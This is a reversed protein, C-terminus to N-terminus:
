EARMPDNMKMVAFFAGQPDALLAFRGPMVDMPPLMVTGGLETAKAVTADCDAVAFYTLWHPPVEDPVRGRMDLMGGVGAGDLHWETYVSGDGMHNKEATWGFVAGYFREATDPDRTNLENWSLSDPENVIGAGISEGAQWASFVAGSPDMAVLMRGATMVDMPPALITGGADTIAKATADVDAVTVYTNWMPPGADPQNPGIGAVAVGGVEFMRYGGTEAPDGAETCDWGFLGRYFAVSSEVDTSSVDVWSPTGPAYATVTAM